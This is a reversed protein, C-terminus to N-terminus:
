SNVNGSTKRKGVLLKAGEFCQAVMQMIGFKNNSLSTSKILTNKIKMCGKCM